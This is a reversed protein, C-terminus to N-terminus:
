SMFMYKAKEANGELGIEESPVLLAETNEKTTHIDEGLISVDSAYVLFQHTGKFIQGEQNASGEQHYTSLFFFFFELADGKNLCNKIPFTDSTQYINAQQVRTYTENLCM